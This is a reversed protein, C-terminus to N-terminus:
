AVVELDYWKRLDSLRAKEPNNGETIAYLRGNIREVQAVVPVPPIGYSFRITDGERIRTM